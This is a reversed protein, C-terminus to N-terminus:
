CLLRSRSLANATELITSYINSVMRNAFRQFIQVGGAPALFKGLALWAASLIILANNKATRAGVM